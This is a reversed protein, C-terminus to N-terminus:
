RRRRSSISDYVSTSPGVGGSFAPPRISSPRPAMGSSSRVSALASLDLVLDNVLAEQCFARLGPMMSEIVDPLDGMSLSEPTIGLETLSKNVLTLATRASVYKGLVEM